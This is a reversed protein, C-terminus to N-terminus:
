APRLPSFRPAPATALRRAPSLIKPPWVIFPASGPGTSARGGLLLYGATAAVGARADSPPLKGRARPAGRYVVAMRLFSRTRFDGRDPAFPCPVKGSLSQARSLHRFNQPERQPTGLERRSLAHSQAVVHEFASPAAPTRLQCGQASRRRPLTTVMSSSVADTHMSAGTSRTQATSESRAAIRCQTPAM